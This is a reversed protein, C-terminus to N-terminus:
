KKNKNTPFNDESNKTGDKDADEDGDSTKNGDTDPNFPDLELQEEKHGNLGDGDFDSEKDDINGPRTSDIVIFMNWGQKDKCFSPTMQLHVTGKVQLNTFADRDANEITASYETTLNSSVERGDCFGVCTTSAAGTGSDIFKEKVVTGDVGETKKNKPVNVKWKSDKDFSYFAICKDTKSEKNECVITKVWAVEVKVEVAGRGRGAVRELKTVKVPDKAPKIKLSQCDCFEATSIVLEMQFSRSESGSVGVVEFNSTGPSAGADVIVNLVFNGNQQPM